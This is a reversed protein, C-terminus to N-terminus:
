CRELSWAWSKNQLPEQYVRGEEQLGLLIGGVRHWSLRVAEALNLQGRM